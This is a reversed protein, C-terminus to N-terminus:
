HQNPVDLAALFSATALAAGLTFALKLLLFVVDKGRLTITKILAMSLGFALLGCCLCNLEVGRASSDAFFQSFTPRVKEPLSGDNVPPLDENSLDNDLGVGGPAGDRGYSLLFPKGEKISYVFPRGWGDLPMNAGYREKIFSSFDGPSQPSTGNRRQYETFDSNFDGLAQLTRAQEMRFRHWSGISRWGVLGVTVVVVAAVVASIAVRIVIQGVKSLSNGRSENGVPVNLM